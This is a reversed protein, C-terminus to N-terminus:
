KESSPGSGGEQLFQKLVGIIATLVAGGAGSGLINGILAGIDLSETGPVPLTGSAAAATTATSALVGLAQLLWHGAGGGVAGAVTNGATGLSKDKLGVGALNGGVIGSILTVALNLLDM